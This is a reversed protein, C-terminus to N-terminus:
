FEFNMSHLERGDPCALDGLAIVVGPVRDLLKATAEAGKMDACDAIDGAGVLVADGPDSTTSRPPTAGLSLAAVVTAAYVM